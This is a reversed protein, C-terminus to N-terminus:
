VDAEEGVDQPNIGADVFGEVVMEQRGEEGKDDSNEGFDSDIAEDMIMDDDEDDSAPDDRNVPCRGGVAGLIANHNQGSRGFGVEGRLKPPM